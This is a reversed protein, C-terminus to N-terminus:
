DGALGQDQIWQRYYEELVNKGHPSLRWVVEPYNKNDYHALGADELKSFIRLNKPVDAAKCPLKKMLSIMPQTVEYKTSGWWSYTKDKM